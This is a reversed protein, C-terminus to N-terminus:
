RKRRAARPQRQPQRRFAAPVGNMAQAKAVADALEEDSVHVGARRAMQRAQAAALAAVDGADDATMGGPLGGGGEPTDEDAEAVSEVLRGFPILRQVWPKMFLAIGIPAHAMVLDSWAGGRIANMIFARIRPNTRCLNEWAEGVTLEDDELDDRRTCMIIAEGIDPDMARVIKGARRYLKNVGAAIVGGRPMAPPEALSRKGKGSEPPRDKDREAPGRAALDAAIEEATPPVKPRGPRKKPRMKGTEKDRTWGWPANETFNQGASIDPQDDAPPEDPSIFDDPSTGADYKEGTM